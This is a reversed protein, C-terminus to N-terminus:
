FCISKRRQRYNDQQQDENGNNLSAVSGAIASTLSGINTSQKSLTEKLQRLQRLEDRAKCGMQGEDSDIRIPGMIALVEELRSILVELEELYQNTSIRMRIWKWQTMRLRAGHSEFLLYGRMESPGPCLKSAVSLLDECFEIKEFGSKGLVERVKVKNRINEVSELPYCHIGLENGIKSATLLTLEYFSVSAVLPFRTHEEKAIKLVNEYDYLDHFHYTIDSHPYVDKVRGPPLIVVLEYGTDVGSQFYDFYGGIIFVRKKKKSM